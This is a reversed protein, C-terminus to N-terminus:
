RAPRNLFVAAGVMGPLLGSGGEIRAEIELQQSVGEVRANLKAVRARYNRGTEKIRLELPMNPKLWVAWAAPVFMQAKLHSPNVLDVLPHGLPVSEAVKVRLRAVRGPFPAQVSCYALQSQRLEVQSRLKEAAVAALTVELEGAAGLAQLRLRALHTERAGRYEAEAARLQAQQETCDFEVLPTGAKVQEGLGYPLRLIRGAMQSSLLTEEGAQVLAAIEGEDFAPPAPSQAAGIGAAVSAVLLFSRTATAKL